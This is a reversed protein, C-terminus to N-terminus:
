RCAVGRRSQGGPRRRRFNSVRSGGSGCVPPLRLASKPIYRAETPTPQIPLWNEGEWHFPKGLVVVLSGSPVKDREVNLAKEVVSSGPMVFVAANDPAEVFANRADVQKVYKARIWSFSGAPPRIAVWDPQDKCDNLVTVRDGYHMKSTPYYDKTPGSRVEVEPVIVSMEAPYNPPNAGPQAQSRGSFLILAVVGWCVNRTRM